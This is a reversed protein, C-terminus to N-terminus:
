RLPGINKLKHCQAHAYQALLGRNKTIRVMPDTIKTPNDTWRNLFFTGPLECYSCKVIEKRM